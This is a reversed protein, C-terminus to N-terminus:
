ESAALFRGVLDAVAKPDVPHSFFEREGDVYFENAARVIFVIKINRRRNYHLMRALAGGNLRGAGFNLRTVLVRIQPDAEIARLAVLPDDFGVAEYGADRVAQLPETLTPTL